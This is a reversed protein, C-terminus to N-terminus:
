KGKKQLIKMGKEFQEKSLIDQLVLYADIRYNAVDKKLKAVEDVYKKLDSSDKQEEYVGRKIIIELENVRKMSQEIKPVIVSIIENSFRFMQEDTIGLEESYLKVMMGGHVFNILENTNKHHFKEKSNSIVAYKLLKKYQEETLVTRIDNICDLHSKTLETRLKGISDVIEYQSESTNSSIAINDALALELMKIDKSINVVKPVTSKKIKTILEIQEKSLGLTSSKPHHLALGALFPLNKHVLFYDKPFNEKGQLFKGPKGALIKLKKSLDGRPIVPEANLITFIGSLIFINIFLKLM